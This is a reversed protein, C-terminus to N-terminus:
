ARRGCRSLPGPPLTPTAPDPCRCHPRSPVARTSATMGGALGGERVQLLGSGEGLGAAPRHQGAVAVARTGGARAGEGLREECGGRHASAFTTWCWSCATWGSRPCRTLCAYGSRHACTPLAGPEGVAGRCLRSTPAPLAPQSAVAAQMVRAHGQAAVPRRPGHARTPHAPLPAHAARISAEGARPRRRRLPGARLRREGGGAVGSARRVDRGAQPV